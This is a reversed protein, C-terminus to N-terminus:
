GWKQCMRYHGKFADEASNYGEFDLEEWNAAVYPCCKYKSKKAKFVMTEYKRKYGINEYGIKEMYNALRDDGKGKLKIKKARALIERVESDPLYEGVTSVIYKGVYTNLHFKCEDSVCLHGPHPMWVWGKESIEKSMLKAGKWKKNKGVM